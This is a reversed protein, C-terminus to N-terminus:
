NNFIYSLDNTIKKLVRKKLLSSFPRFNVWLNQIERLFHFIIM